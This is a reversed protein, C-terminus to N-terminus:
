GGPQASSFTGLFSESETLDTCREDLAKYEAQWTARFANYAESSVWRDVTLYHYHNSTDRLLVTGLYGNGNKFLEVWAGNEGYINEFEATRDAKVQYEWIVVYM